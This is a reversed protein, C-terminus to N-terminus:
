ERHSGYDVHCSALCPQPLRSMGGLLIYLECGAGALLWLTTSGTMAALQGVSLEETRVCKKELPICGGGGGWSGCTMILYIHRTHARFVVVVAVTNFPYASLGRALLGWLGIWTYCCVNSRNFYGETLHQIRDLQERLHGQSSPFPPSFLIGALSFWMGRFIQYTWIKKDVIVSDSGRLEMLWVVPLDGLVPVWSKHILFALVWLIDVVEFVCLRDSNHVRAGEKKKGERQSVLRVRTGPRTGSLNINHFREYIRVSAFGSPLVRVEARCFMQWSHHFFPAGTM